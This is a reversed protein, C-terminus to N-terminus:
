RTQMVTHLANTEITVGGRKGGGLQRMRKKGAKQKELLKRKRSVDGGYCKALVNKRYAKITERAIIRNAAVAQIAVDFQQRSLQDKLAACLKRGVSDAKSRHLLRALADVPEGNILIDLRVLDAPRMDHPEYDFSAYGATISKLEDYFDSGLESLPLIYRLLVRSQSGLSGETEDGDGHGDRGERGGRGGRGGRAGCVNGGSVHEVLEGRRSQAMTMVAGLADSPTVITGLITPELVGRVRERTPFDAPNELDTWDGHERKVKIPVTPATVIVSAGHEQELRQRFVDMHLLGLFGCRFGAGLANSNERKFIVSSDNLTLKNMSAQLLDFEGANAPFIAATVMSKPERFGPLANVPKKHIFWTDGIKAARTNKMGTLVYGVQGTLLADQERPTPTLVGVEIVDWSDGSAKSVIRDGKRLSGDVVNVLCVVGRYEDHYADFVLLRTNAEVDGTPPPVRDVIADLLMRVGEGTKASVSVCDAADLDFNDELQSAVRAPDAAPMDIKNLVPIITLDQEFALYFNAVTQAEVGQSADVLLLCGDCAALSRSVEYSFDVHGPTDILNLLYRKGGKSHVLSSTQAKVTIGREKEVQLTDLVRVGDGRLAVGTLEMMRDALTSKGHDIHAIISFNRILSPPFSSSPFTTPPPPPGTSDDTSFFSVSLPLLAERRARELLQCRLRSASAVLTRISPTM